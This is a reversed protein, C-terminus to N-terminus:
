AVQAQMEDHLSRILNEIKDTCGFKKLVIWLDQRSVIDFAKPFDIFVAYLSM